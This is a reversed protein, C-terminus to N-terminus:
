PVYLPPSYGLIMKSLAEDFSYGIMLIQQMVWFVRGDEAVTLFFHGSQAEGLPYLKAGILNSYEELRDGEDIASSPDIEFSQKSLFKKRSVSIGGFEILIKEAAPFIEIQDISYVQESWKSVLSDVRRGKFWGADILVSEVHWTFRESM